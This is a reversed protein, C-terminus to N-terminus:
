KEKKNITFGVQENIRNNKKMEIECESSCYENTNQEIAAQVILPITEEFVKAIAKGIKAGKRGDITRGLEEGIYIFNM